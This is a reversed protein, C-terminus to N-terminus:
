SHLGAKSVLGESVDISFILRDVSGLYGDFEERTIHKPGATGGHLSYQVDPALPVSWEQTDTVTFPTEHRSRDTQEWYKMKGYFRINGGEIRAVTVAAETEVPTNSSQFLTAEYHGDAISQSGGQSDGGAVSDASNSSVASLDIGLTELTQKAQELTEKIRSEKQSSEDRYELHVKEIEKCREDMAYLWEDQSVEVGDIEFRDNLRDGTEPDRSGVVVRVLDKTVEVRGSDSLGVVTFEQVDDIPNVNSVSAGDGLISLVTKGDSVGITFEGNILSEYEKVLSGDKACSWIEMQYRWTGLSDVDFTAPDLETVLVLCDGAGFDILRAYAFGHMTQYNGVHWTTPVGYKDVYEQAKERYAEKVSEASVSASQASDSEAQGSDSATQDVSESMSSSEQDLGNSQGSSASSGDRCGVTLLLLAFAMVIIAAILTKVNVATKTGAMPEAKAEAKAESKAEAKAGAMPELRQEGSQLMIPPYM